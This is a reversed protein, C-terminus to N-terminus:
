ATSKRIAKFKSPVASNGRSDLWDMGGLSEEFHVHIDYPIQFDKIEDIISDTPMPFIFGLDSFHREDELDADFGHATEMHDRDSSTTSQTPSTPSEDKAYMVVQNVINEKSFVVVQDTSDEQNVIDKALLEVEKGAVEKAFVDVKNAITALLTNAYMGHSQYNKSDYLVKLKGEGAWEDDYVRSLLGWPRLIAQLGLRNLKQVNEEFQASTVSLIEFEAGEVPSRGTQKNYRAVFECNAYNAFSRQETCILNRLSQEM